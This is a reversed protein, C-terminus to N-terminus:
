FGYRENAPLDVYIPRLPPGQPSGFPPGMDLLTRALTRAWIKAGGAVAIVFYVADSREPFVPQSTDFNTSGFLAQAKPIHSSQNKTVFYAEAGKSPKNISKTIADNLSLTNILYFLIITLYSLFIM